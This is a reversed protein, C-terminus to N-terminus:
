IFPCVEGTRLMVRMVTKSHHSSCGINAGRQLSPIHGYAVEWIAKERLGKGIGGMSDDDRTVSDDWVEAM